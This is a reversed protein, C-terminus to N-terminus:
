GTFAFLFNDLDKGMNSIKLIYIVNGSFALGFIIIGEEVRVSHACKNNFVKSWRMKM